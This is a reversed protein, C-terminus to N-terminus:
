VGVLVMAGGSLLPVTVNDDMPLPLLEVLAAVGAGLALTWQFSVVSVVSLVAVTVLGVVFFAVSGLPSKGFIRARRVRGGVLAAMPDGLSLFFLALVAVTRDFLIFALLAALIMYTAGTVKREEAGKLLPSLWLVLISNLSPLTFRALELLLAVGVLIGLLTVMFDHSFLLGLLPITSGAGM